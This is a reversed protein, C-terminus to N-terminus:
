EESVLEATVAASELHIDGAAVAQPSSKSFGAKGAEGVAVECCTITGDILYRLCRILISVKGVRLM